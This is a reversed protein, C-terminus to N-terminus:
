SFFWLTQKFTLLLPAVYFYFVCQVIMNLKQLDVEESEFPM